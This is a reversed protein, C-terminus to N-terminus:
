TDSTRSGRSTGSQAVAHRQRLKDRIEEPTYARRRREARAVVVGTAAVGVVGALGLVKWWKAKM